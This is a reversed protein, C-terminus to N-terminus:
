DGMPVLRIRSKRWEYYARMFGLADARWGRWCDGCWWEKGVNFVYGEAADKDAMQKHEGCSSCWAKSADMMM